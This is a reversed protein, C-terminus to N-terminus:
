GNTVEEFVVLKENAPSIEYTIHGISIGAFDLDMRGEKLTGNSVVKIKEPNALVLERLFLYYM